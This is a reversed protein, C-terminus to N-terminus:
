KSLRKRSKWRRSRSPHGYRCGSSPAVKWAVSIYWRAKGMYVINRKEPCTLGKCGTNGAVITDTRGQGMGLEVRRGVNVIVM